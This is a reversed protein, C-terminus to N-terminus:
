DCVNHRLDFRRRAAKPVSHCKCVARSEDVAAAELDIDGVGDVNSLGHCRRCLQTTTTIM